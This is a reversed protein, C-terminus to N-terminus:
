KYVILYFGLWLLFFLCYSSFVISYAIKKRKGAMHHIGSALIFWYIIEFINLAKLPYFWRKPLNYPDFLNILSIPYFSKIEFLNPDPNIILFWVIKLIEPALFILESIAVIQWVQGFTIKYGFMFSGVWLIFAISTFKILYIIPVSLYQLTNLLQFVGIQGRSELVEFAATNNEILVKKAILLVLTAACILAFGAWKNIDFFSSNTTYNKNM